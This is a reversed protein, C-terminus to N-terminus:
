VEGTVIEETQAYVKIHLGTTRAVIMFTVCFLKKKQPPPYAIQNSSDRSNGTRPFLLKKFMSSYPHSFISSTQTFYLAVSSFVFLIQLADFYWSLDFSLIYLIIIVLENKCFLITSCGLYRTGTVLKQVENSSSWIRVSIEKGKRSQSWSIKISKGTISRITCKIDGNSRETCKMVM